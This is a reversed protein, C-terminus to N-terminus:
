THQCRCLCKLCLSITPVLHFGLSTLWSVPARAGNSVSMSVIAALPLKCPVRPLMCVEAAQAATETRQKKCLPTSAHVEQVDGAENESLEKM